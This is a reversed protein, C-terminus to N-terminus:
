HQNDEDAACLCLVVVLGGGVEVGGPHAQEVITDRQTLQSDDARVGTHTRTGPTVGELGLAVRQHSLHLHTHSRQVDSTPVVVVLKRDM